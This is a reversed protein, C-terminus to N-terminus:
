NQRYGWLPGAGVGCRTCLQTLILIPNALGFSVLVQIEQVKSVGPETSFTAQLHLWLMDLCHDGQGGQSM